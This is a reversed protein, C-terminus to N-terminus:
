FIELLSGLLLILSIMIGITLIILITKWKSQKKTETEVVRGGRRVNWCDPCLSVKDELEEDYFYERDNIPFKKGCDSCVFEEEKEEIERVKEDVKEEVKKVKSVIKFEDLMKETNTVFDELFSKVIEETLKCEDIQCNITHRSTFLVPSKLHKKCLQRIIDCLYNNLEKESHRMKLDIDVGYRGGETFDYNGGSIVNVTKRRTNYFMNLEIQNDSTYMEENVLKYKSKNLETTEYKTPFRRIVVNKDENYAIEMSLSAFPVRM